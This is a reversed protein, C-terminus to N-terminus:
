NLPRGDPGKDNALGFASLLEQRIEDETKDEYHKEIPDVRVQIHKTPAHGAMHLIETAARNAVAEDNSNLAIAIKRRIIAPAALQMEGVVEPMTDLTADTLQQLIERADDSRVINGVNVETYGTALAIDRLTEGRWYLQLVQLWAPKIQKAM